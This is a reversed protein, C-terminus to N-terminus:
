EKICKNFHLAFLCEKCHALNKSFKQQRILNVMEKIQNGFKIIEGKNMVETIIHEPHKIFILKLDIEEINKFLRNVIYSYFKLQTLYTKARNNIKISKIDDTKYDVIIIKNGDFILKDIIGFLYFDNKKVYVEYENKFVNFSKLYSYTRSNLFSELDSIINKRLIKIEQTDYELPAIEEKISKELFAPVDELSFEHQLVKHIIRGKVDAYNRHNDSQIGSDFEDIDNNNEFENFEFRDSAINGRKSEKYWQKNKNMLQVFGYDYTMQYKLPCQNYVAVKTASIIEEKPKDFIEEIRISPFSLNNSQEAWKNECEQIESIIPIEIEKMKENISYNGNNGVLYKLKSKLTFTTELLNIDSGEMLMGIFSDKNYILNKRFSTSIFLYNQARTLGVYFLRKIEANNKKDSILNHIGVIPASQYEAFYNGNV